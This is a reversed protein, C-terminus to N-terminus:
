RPTMFQELFVITESLEKAEAANLDGISIAHFEGTATVVHTAIVRGGIDMPEMGNKRHTRLMFRQATVGNTKLTVNTSGINHYIYDHFQNTVNGSLTTAVNTLVTSKSRFFDVYFGNTPSTRIISLTRQQTAEANDGKNDAFSSCTFSFNSSVATAFAQPEMAVTQVTNIALGEWGGSGRSAGNVIITDAAADGASGGLTGALGTEEIRRVLEDTGFTGKGAACWVNIGRTDLVLIWADRGGLARRLHDFSLRYNASALVPADAGPSGGALTLRASPEVSTSGEEASRTTLPPFTSASMCDALQEPRKM